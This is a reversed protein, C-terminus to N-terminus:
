KCQIVEAIVLSSLSAFDKLLEALFSPHFFICIHRQLSSLHYLFLKIIYMTVQVSIVCQSIGIHNSRFLYM